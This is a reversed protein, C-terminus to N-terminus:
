YIIGFPKELFATLFKWEQSFINVFSIDLLDLIWIIYLIIVVWSLYGLTLIALPNSYVNGLFSFFFCLHCACPFISIRMQLQPFAFWVVIFYWKVVLIFFSHQCLHPSILVGYMAPPFIFHLIAVVKPFLTTTGWLPICMTVMHGLLAVGLYIGWLILVYTRVSVWICITILLMIWLLSLICLVWVGM